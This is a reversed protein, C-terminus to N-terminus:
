RKVGPEKGSSGAYARHRWGTLEWLSLRGDRDKDLAGFRRTLESSAAAEERSIYGDGDVDLSKFTAAGPDAYSRDIPNRPQARAPRASSSSDGAAAAAEVISFALVAV